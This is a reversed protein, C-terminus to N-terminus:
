KKITTCWAFLTSLFLCDILVLFCCFLPLAFCNGLTRIEGKQIKIYNYIVNSVVGARHDLAAWWGGGDIGIGVGEGGWGACRGVM